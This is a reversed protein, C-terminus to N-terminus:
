LFSMVLGYICMLKAAEYFVFEYQLGKLHFLLLGHVRAEGGRLVRIRVIIREIFAPIIFSWSANSIAESVVFYSHMIHQRIYIPTRIHLRVIGICVPPINCVYVSVFM